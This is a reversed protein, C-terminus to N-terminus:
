FSLAVLQSSESRTSAIPLPVGMSAWFMILRWKLGMSLRAPSGEMRQCSRLCVQKVIRSARPMYGLYTLCRAPCALM